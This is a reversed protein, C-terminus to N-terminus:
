ESEGIMEESGEAEEEMATKEKEEPSENAEESETPMEEPKKRKAVAVGIAALVILILLIWLWSLANNEHSAALPPIQVENVEESNLSTSITETNYGDKSITLNHYGAHAQIKFYGNEDTTAAEGSDLTVTAGAVPHGDTGRVTGIITCTETTAPAMLPYKDQAGSGGLINQYPTDGIGDPGSINQYPGHNNDIENYNSWYNGGTPYETNWYNTGTNDYAQKINNIFNNHYITNSSSSSLAIGNGNNSSASNKAIISNNSSDLYIGNGNNSSATNKTIISNNSSDLYIGNGDNSSASNNTITNNSSSSLRIGDENNSSATNNTITNNTSSELSIGVENNSSATNNQITCSTSFGLEIGVSGDSVNQNEVIINTCNALIVEGAGAPVTGGIQNKWYYVPKGNVTNSTDISQTNWHELSYGWIFIGDDVMTNNTIRNNSSILLDIGDDNNSSATNNTITNSSSSDLYIGYATNSSANNNAITNNSSFFLWIGYGNNSANNNTITNSNSSYLFIGFYNNAVTNKDLIGGTVNYLYLGSNALYIGWNGWVDHLSCNRVVFYATTNGIYLCYGYGTGNIDYNEIIYPDGETGSGKWGESSAQNAFDANSNIRIPAHSTLLPVNSGPASSIGASNESGTGVNIMGFVGSMLMLLTITIVIVKKMIKM